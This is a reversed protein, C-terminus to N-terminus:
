DNEIPVLNFLLMDPGGLIPVGVEGLRAVRFLGREIREDRAGLFRGTADFLRVSQVEVERFLGARAPEYVTHRDRTRLTAVADGVQINIREKIPEHM